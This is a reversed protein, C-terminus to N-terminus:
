GLCNSREVCSNQSELPLICSKSSNLVLLSWTGTLMEMVMNSLLIEIANM